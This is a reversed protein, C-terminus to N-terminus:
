DETTLLAGSRPLIGGACSRALVAQEPIGHGNDSVQFALSDAESRLSVTAATAGSHRHINTMTEQLLRFLALEVNEPLREVSDPIDCHVQIGSRKTFGNVFWRTASAFGREDLLPPHLLYSTTRIERLAEDVLAGIDELLRESDARQPGGRQLAALTM